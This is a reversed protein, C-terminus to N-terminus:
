NDCSWKYYIYINACLSYKLDTVVYESPSQERKEAQSTNKIGFGCHHFHFVALVLNFDFMGNNSSHLIKSTICKGSGTTHASM